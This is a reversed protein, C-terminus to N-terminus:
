ALGEKEAFWTKLILTGEDFEKWVESDDHVVSKPIWKEEDDIVCLLAKDTARSVYVNEIRVGEDFEERRYRTM